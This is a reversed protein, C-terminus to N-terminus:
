DLIGLQNLCFFFIIKKKLQIQIVRKRTSQNCVFFFFGSVNLSSFIEVNITVQNVIIRMFM